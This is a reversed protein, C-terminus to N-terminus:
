MALSPSAAPEAMVPQFDRIFDATMKFGLLRALDAAKLSIINPQFIGLWTSGATILREVAVKAESSNGVLQRLHCTKIECVEDKNVNAQLLEAIIEQQNGAVAYCLPSMGNDKNLKNVSAHHQLLNKVMSIDANVIAQLLITMGKIDEIDVDVNNALMFDVSAVRKAKYALLLLPVGNKSEFDPHKELFKLLFADDLGAFIKTYFKEVEVAVRYERSSFM